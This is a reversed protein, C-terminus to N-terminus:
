RSSQQRDAQEARQGAQETSLSILHCEGSAHRVNLHHKLCSKSKLYATSVSAEPTRAFKSPGHPCTLVSALPAPQPHRVICRAFGEWCRPWREWEKGCFSRLSVVGKKPKAWGEKEWRTAELDSFDHLPELAGGDSKCLELLHCPSYVTKSNM